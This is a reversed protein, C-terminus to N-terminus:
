LRRCEHLKEEFRGTLSLQGDIGHDCHARIEDSIAGLESTQRLNEVASQIQNRAHGAILAPLCDLTGDRNAACVNVCAKQLAQEVINAVIGVMKRDKLM